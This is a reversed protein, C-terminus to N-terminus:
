SPVFAVRRGFFGPHTFRVTLPVWRTRGPASSHEILEHASFFRPDVELLRWWEGDEYRVTQGPVVEAGSRADIIKM